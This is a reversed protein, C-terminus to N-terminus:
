GCRKPAGFPKTSKPFVFWSMIAFAVIDSLAVLALGPLGAVTQLYRMPIMSAGIAAHVGVALLL